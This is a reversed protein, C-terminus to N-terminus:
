HHLGRRQGCVSRAVFLRDHQRDLCARRLRHKDLKPISFKEAALIIRWVNLVSGVVQDITTRLNALIAHCRLSEFM